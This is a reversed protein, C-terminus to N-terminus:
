GKLYRKEFDDMDIKFHVVSDVSEAVDDNLSKRVYEKESLYNSTYQLLARAVKVNLGYDACIGSLYESFETDEFVGSQMDSVVRKGAEFIVSDAIGEM